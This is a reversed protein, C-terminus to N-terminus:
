LYTIEITANGDLSETQTLQLAARSNINASLRLDMSATTLPVPGSVATGFARYKSATSQEKDWNASGSAVWSTANNSHIVTSASGDVVPNESAVGLRGVRAGSSTLGLGLQNTFNGQATGDKNDHLTMALLTPGTCEIELLILKMPQMTMASSSLTGADIQGFDAIGSDALELQCSSPVISGNLTVVGSVVQASATSTAAAFLAAALLSHRLKM